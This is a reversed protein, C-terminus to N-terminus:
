RGAGARIAECSPCGDRDFSQGDQPEHLGEAHAQDFDRQQDRTPGAHFTAQHNRGGLQPQSCCQQPPGVFDRCKCREM